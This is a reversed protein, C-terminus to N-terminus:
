LIKCKDCPIVNKNSALSVQKIFILSHFQNHYPTHTEKANDYYHKMVDNASRYDLQVGNIMINSHLGM